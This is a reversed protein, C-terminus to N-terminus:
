EETWLNLFEEQVREGPLGQQVLLFRMQTRLILSSEIFPELKKLVLCNGTLAVMMAKTFGTDARKHTEQTEKEPEWM